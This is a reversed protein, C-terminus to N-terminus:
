KACALNQATDVERQQKFLYNLIRLILQVPAKGFAHLKALRPPIQTRPQTVINPRLWHVNIANQRDMIEPLRNPGTNWRKRRADDLATGSRLRAAEERVRLM